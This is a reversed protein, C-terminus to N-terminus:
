RVAVVNARVSELRYQVNQSLELGEKAIGHLKKYLTKQSKLSINGELAKKCMFQADQAMDIGRTAAVKSDIM